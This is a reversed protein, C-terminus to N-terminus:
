CRGWPPWCTALASGTAKAGATGIAPMEASWRRRRPLSCEGSAPTPLEFRGLRVNGSTLVINITTPGALRYGTRPRQGRWPRRKHLDAPQGREYRGGHLGNSPGRPWRRRGSTPRVGRGPVGRPRPGLPEVPRLPTSVKSRAGLTVGAITLRIPTAGGRAPVPSWASLPGNGRGRRRLGRLRGRRVSPSV